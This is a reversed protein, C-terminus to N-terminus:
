LNSCSKHWLKWLTWFINTLWMLKSM